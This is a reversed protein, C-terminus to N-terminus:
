DMLMVDRVEFSREPTFHQFIDNALALVASVVFAWGYNKRDTSIWKRMDLVWPVMGAVVALLPVHGLNIIRDLLLKHSRGFDCFLLLCTCLSLSIFLILPKRSKKASM